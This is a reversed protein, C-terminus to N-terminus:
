SAERVKGGSVRTAVLAVVLSALGILALIVSFRPRRFM